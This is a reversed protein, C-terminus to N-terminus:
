KIRGGRKQARVIDVFHENLKKNYERRGANM